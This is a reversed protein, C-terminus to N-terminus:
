LCTSARCYVSRGLQSPREQVRRFGSRNVWARPLRAAPVLLSHASRLIQHPSPTAAFVAAVSVVVVISGTWLTLDFPIDTIYDVGQRQWGLAQRTYQSWAVLGLVAGFSIVLYLLPGRAFALSTALIAVAPLAALLPKWATQYGLRGLCGRGVAPFGM